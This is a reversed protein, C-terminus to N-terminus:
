DRCKRTKLAIEASEVGAGFTIPPLKGQCAQRPQASPIKVPTEEQFVKVSLRLGLAPKEVRVSRRILCNGLGRSFLDSNGPGKRPMQGGIPNKVMFTETIM